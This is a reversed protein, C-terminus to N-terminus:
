GDPCACPESAESMPRTREFTAGCARCRYESRPVPWADALDGRGQDPLAHGATAIAVPPAPRAAYNGAPAPGASGPPADGSGPADYYFQRGRTLSVLAGAVSMAIAASFVIVLGHHFPGSILHPFFQKGTLVGVNGAPLKSLEGSQALLNRIPNYGLVSAFLTSVPPLSAM